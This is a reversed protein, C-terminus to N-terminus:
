MSLVVVRRGLDSIEFRQGVCGTKTPGPRFVRICTKKRLPQILSYLDLRQLWYYLILGSPFRMDTNFGKRGEALRHVYAVLVLKELCWYFQALNLFLSSRDHCLVDQKFPLITIHFVRLTRCFYVCGTRLM